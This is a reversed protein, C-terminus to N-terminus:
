ETNPDSVPEGEGSVVDGIRFQHKEHAKPGIAIRFDREVGEVKGKMILTYGHYQHTPIQDFSRILRIRAKVTLVKGDFSVKM